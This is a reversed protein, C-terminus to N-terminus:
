NDWIKYTEKLHQILEKTCNNGSFIKGGYSDRIMQILTSNEESVINDPLLLFIPIGLLYATHIEKYTGVTKVAKEIYAIIFNSRIVAQYDAWHNMDDITNGNILFDNRIYQIIDLKNHGPVIDGWWIKDMERSFQEWHGSKKLNKIYQNVVQCNNGSKQGEREVPDFIGFKQNGLDQKIIEKHNEKELDQISKNHEIASALYTTLLLKEGRM